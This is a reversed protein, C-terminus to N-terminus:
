YYSHLCISRLFSIRWSALLCVQYCVFLFLFIAMYGIQYMSVDNQLGVLLFAGCCVLIWYKSLVSKIWRMFIVDVTTDGTASVSHSTENGAHSIYILYDTVYSPFASRPPPYIVDNLFQQIPARM